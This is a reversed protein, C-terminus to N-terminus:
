PFFAAACGCVLATPSSRSILIVSHFSFPPSYHSHRESGESVDLCAALMRTGLTALRAFAAALADSTSKDDFRLLPCDTRLKM